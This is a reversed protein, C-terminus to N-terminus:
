RKRGRGSAEPHAKFWEVQRLRKVAAKMSERIGLNKGSESKVAFKGGQKVIM